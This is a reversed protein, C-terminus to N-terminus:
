VICSVRWGALNLLQYGLSDGTLDTTLVSWRMLLKSSATELGHSAELEIISPEWYGVM